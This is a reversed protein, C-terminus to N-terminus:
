SNSPPTLDEESLDITFLGKKTKHYNLTYSGDGIAWMAPM